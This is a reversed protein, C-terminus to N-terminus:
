VKKLLLNMKRFFTEAMSELTKNQRHLLDIKDDLSSLGSAFEYIEGLKYEKWESM